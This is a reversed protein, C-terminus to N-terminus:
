LELDPKGIEGLRFADCQIRPKEHGGNQHDQTIPQQRSEGSGVNM